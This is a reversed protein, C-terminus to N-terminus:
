IIDWRYLCNGKRGIHARFAPNYPSKDHSFRTDRVLKFTLEKAERPLINGDFKGIQLILEQVLTEFLASAEKYETKHAHYWERDNHENLNKLYSLITQTDM